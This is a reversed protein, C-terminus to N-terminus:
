HCVVVRVMTTGERYEAYHNTCVFDGAPAEPMLYLCLAKFASKARLVQSRVMARQGDKDEFHNVYFKM